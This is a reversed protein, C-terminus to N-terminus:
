LGSSTIGVPMPRPLGPNPTLPDILNLGVAQSAPAILRLASSLADLKAKQEQTLVNLAQQRYPGGPIPLQKRLTNIEIMLAGVRAADSTNQQLLAELAQQKQRLQEWLAAEAQYKATQIDNLNELQADSLGLHQKLEEYRPVYPLIAAQGGPQPAVPRTGDQAAATTLAAVSFLIARCLKM